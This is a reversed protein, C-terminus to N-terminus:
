QEGSFNARHGGGAGDDTGVPGASAGDAFGAAAAPVPAPAAAPGPGVAAQAAAVAATAAAVAAQAATAAPAPAAAAPAAAPWVPPPAVPPPAPYDGAPLPGVAANLVQSNPVSVIGNVTSLKVYTIGIETVTGDIEGSLAGARLRIADGVNFPRAILLVVGSFVNGLAQQAAISVFVTTLAGGLLLQGVEVGFLLLTGILVIIAGILLLAYRVVAAHGVGTVPRLLSGVKGSLGVTAVSGFGAFATATAAAVVQYTAGSGDFFHHFHTQAWASTGAAAIALVLAIISKWPRTKARVIAVQASLDLQPGGLPQM